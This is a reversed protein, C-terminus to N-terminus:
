KILVLKARAEPSLSDIMVIQIDKEGSAQAVPAGMDASVGEPLKYMAGTAPDVILM